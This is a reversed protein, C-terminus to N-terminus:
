CSFHRDFYSVSLCLVLHWIVLVLFALLANRWRKQTAVAADKEFTFFHIVALIPSQVVMQFFLIVSLSWLFRGLLSNDWEPGGLVEKEPFVATMFLAVILSMGMSIFFKAPLRWTRKCLCLGVPFLTFGASFSLGWAAGLIDEIVFRTPSSWSLYTLANVINWCLYNLAFCGISSWFLIKSQKESIEIKM